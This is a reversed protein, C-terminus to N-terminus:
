DNFLEMFGKKYAYRSMLVNLEANINEKLAILSKIQNAPSYIRYDTSNLSQKLLDDIIIKTNLYNLLMCKSLISIENVTLDTNFQGNSRDDLDQKCFTFLPIAQELWMELNQNLEEPTIKLLQYDSIQSLFMDFVKQYPTAM